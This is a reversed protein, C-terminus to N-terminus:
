AATTQRHAWAAHENYLTRHRICGHLVGVLRNGLARLAQHHSDEAARRQDYFARAGPSSSPACFAGNTSPTTSASTASAAPGARRTEQGLRRDVTINRRLKQSVQRHHQSESGFAVSVRWRTGAM